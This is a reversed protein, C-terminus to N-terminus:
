PTVSGVVSGDPAVLHLPVAAGTPGALDRIVALDADAPVAADGLVVAAELGRAGSSVAMAVAVQVASLKLSPLDVSAGAYTRGDLDRVCAGEAAGTRARASRALTVLKVDESDTLGTPM